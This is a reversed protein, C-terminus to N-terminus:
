ADSDMDEDPDGYSSEIEKGCEECEITPGEDYTGAYMVPNTDDSHITACAACMPNSKKTWYGITYCGISTFQPLTGGPEIGTIRYVEKSVAPCSDCM